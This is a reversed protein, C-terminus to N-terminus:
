AKLLTFKVKKFGHFVVLFNSSNTINNFSIICVDDPMGTIIETGLCKGIFYMTMKQPTPPPPPDPV